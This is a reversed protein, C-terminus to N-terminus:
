MTLCNKGFMKGINKKIYRNEYKELNFDNEAIEIACKKAKEVTKMDYSLRQLNSNIEGSQRTGFFEGPGRNKLDEEAIKFGDNTKTMINLRKVNKKNGVTLFCYSQLKSRGVRGRLQHLCALGFREANEIMMVTATPINIGVEIVTTSVIVDYKGVSFDVMVSDKEEGKMRGHLLGVKFDKFVGKQLKEQLKVANEVELNESEEILPCVVFARHKKSLESKIFEYATKRTNEDVIKTVIEKRGKPLEDIVSVDMDGYIILALTRPIPTASMVISHVNEGKQTLKMRNNVGFRHQEDTVCLGLNYFEVKDFVLANTGIIVNAKGSKIKELSERREKASLDSVLLVTEYGFKNFYEKIEEYHQKALIETPAMLSAQYGCSVAVLMAMSAVVTKGSGVDGQILRNVRKKDKFDKCIERVVRKQANTLEFPLMEAFKEVIKFNSLEVGKEYYQEQKVLRLGLILYFIEEFAIRQTADNLAIHDKPFHINYLAYMRECLSYKQRLEFPLTEEVINKAYDLANKMISRMINQTIGQTLPYNPVYGEFFTEVKKKASIEPQKVTLSGYDFVAKGYFSYEEGIKLNKISYNRNFFVFRISGTEDCATIETITLKPNIKKTKIDSIVCSVNVTEEFEIDKIKKVNTRNEYSKPYFMLIDSLSFLGLKMLCKERKESVGKIKTLPIEWLNM